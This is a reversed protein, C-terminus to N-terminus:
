GFIEMLLGLRIIMNEGSFIFKKKRLYYLFLTSPHSLCSSKLKRKKAFIFLYFSLSIKAYKLM